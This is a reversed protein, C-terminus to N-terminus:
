LVFVWKVSAVYVVLYILHIKIKLSDRYKAPSVHNFDSEKECFIIILM